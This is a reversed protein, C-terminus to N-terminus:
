SLFRDRQFRVMFFMSNQNDMIKYVFHCRFDSSHLLELSERFWDCGIEESPPPPPPLIEIQNSGLLFFVTTHDVKSM